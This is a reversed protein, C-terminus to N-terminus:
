NDQWNVEKWKDGNLRFWLAHNEDTRFVRSGFQGLREVVQLSPHKFKNRYGVSIFSLQPTVLSLFGATSSTKSGHHEVKLLEADLIDGWSLLQKEVEKEADGPFLLSHNKHKVLLVLSNNNLNYGNVTKFNSFRPFPGLIYIRTEEDIIVRDGYKLIRWPISNESFATLLSDNWKYSIAMPPLYASDITAYKLLDFTGGMHDLHPHSIFLANIHTTGFKNLVPYIATRAASSKRSAPGTDIIVAKGRPTFFAAADGQGVDMIILNFAPKQLLSTGFVFLLLITSVVAMIKRTAKNGPNFILIVISLYLLMAILNFRPIYFFAAPLNAAAEVTGTLVHILWQLFNSILGALVSSIFAFALFLFGMVVILGIFPIILINLFFSILSLKHFYHMTLPLTGIQASLSVLFPMLIWNNVRPRLKGSKVLGLVKQRFPEMKTYFYIISLVAAFSFQFGVWFLQQPQWLLIIFAAAFISNYVSTKREINVGFLLLSAMLTARVVPPQNGTLFMYFLLLLIILLNRKKFSIPFFSLVVYFIGAVFGVHLGSIALVHMVGANQFNELVQRDMNERKGLILAKLFNAAFPSFYTEFCETLRHRLPAFISKEASFKDDTKGLIIQRSNKVRILAVIERQRLYNAYDFQGPNRRPPLPELDANLISLIQGPLVAGSFGAPFYLLIKGEVFAALTDKHIEKLEFVAKVRDSKQVSKIEGRLEVQHLPLSNLYPQRLNAAQWGGYRIAGMLFFIIILLSSIKQQETSTKLHLFLAAFALVLFLSFLYSLQINFYHQTLIGLALSVTLPLLPFHAFTKQFQDRESM